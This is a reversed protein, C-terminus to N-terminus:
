VDDWQCLAYTVALAARLHIGQVNYSSTFLSILETLRAAAKSSKVQQLLERIEQERHVTSLLTRDTFPDHFGRQPAKVDIVFRGLSVAELPLLSSQLLLNGAM